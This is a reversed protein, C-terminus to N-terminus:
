VSTWISSIEHKDCMVPGISLFKQPTGSTTSNVKHKRKGHGLEKEAERTTEEGGCFDLSKAEGIAVIEDSQGGTGGVEIGPVIKLNTTVQLISVASNDIATEHQENAWVDRVGVLGKQAQGSTEWRVMDIQVCSSLGVEVLDKRAQNSMELEIPTWELAVTQRGGGGPGKSGSRSTEWGVTDIRTYSSPGVEMLDKQAQDSTESGVTDM